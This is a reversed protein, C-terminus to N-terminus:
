ENPYRRRWRREGGEDDRPRTAARRREFFRMAEHVWGGLIRMPEEFPQELERRSPLLWPRAVCPVEPETGTVYAERITRPCEYTPLLGSVPDVDRFTVGPPVRFARPPEARVIPRMAAVWLELATAASSLRLPRGDDFGVWAAGIVTPTYGVFWADRYDNTTGTKGALAGRFGRERVGRGTGRDVVGELLHHV